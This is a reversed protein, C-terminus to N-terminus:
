AAAAAAAIAGGTVHNGQGRLRGRPLSQHVEVHGAARKPVWQVIVRAVHCRALHSPILYASRVM